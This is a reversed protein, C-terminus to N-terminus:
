KQSHRMHETIIDLLPHPFRKLQEGKGQEMLYYFRGSKVSPALEYDMADWEDERFSYFAWHIQHKNLIDLVDGLYTGCDQWHRVCGFEGAVIRNSPIDQLKGWNFVSNLHKQLLTKNWTQQKGAYLSQFGPYRHQPKRKINAGSTAAWPEYMHFDYLVKTDSLPKPWYMFGMAGGYWGGDVMIPTQNDVKRIAEIVTEYFAPLDRTTKQHKQYWAIRQELPAHEDLGAKFEPVPENLINYGVVAPHNKLKKSLDQWFKASQQWYKKDKFLRNDYVNNNHQKFRSGPLSLPTIV